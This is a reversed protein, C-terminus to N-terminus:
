CHAALAEMYTRLMPVRNPRFSTDTIQLERLRDLRFVRYDKRLHCWAILCHSADFHVIGLPDVERVTEAGEKDTYAFRVRREDWTAQRLAATDVKPEPIPSFRRAHLVAHKLRHAQRDPLRAQLKALAGAAAAALVPEATVEVERLGLVLAELEDDSFSQPPIANDEVLTFGYGAAGDIVAGLSRLTDVDRYITRPSVSLADSLAEATVPPAMGRMTQMLHFLRATRSM